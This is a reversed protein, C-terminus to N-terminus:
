LYCEPPFLTNGKPLDKSRAHVSSSDIAPNSCLSLENIVMKKFRRKGDKYFPVATFGPSVGTIIKDKCLQRAEEFSGTKVPNLTFWLANDRKQFFLNIGKRGIPFEKKHSLLATCSRPIEIETDSSIVEQMGDAFYPKDFDVVKGTISGDSALSSEFDRQFNEM